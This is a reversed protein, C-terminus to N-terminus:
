HSADRNLLVKLHVNDRERDTERGLEVLSHLVEEERFSTIAVLRVTIVAM